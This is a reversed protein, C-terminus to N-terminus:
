LGLFHLEAPHALTGGSVWGESINVKALLRCLVMKSPLHWPVQGYYSGTEKPADAMYTFLLKIFAVM